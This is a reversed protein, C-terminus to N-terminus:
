PSSLSCPSKPIPVKLASSPTIIKILAPCKLFQFLFTAPKGLPFVTKIRDPDVTKEAKHFCAANLTLFLRVTWQVFHGAALFLELTVIDISCNDSETERVKRLPEINGAIVKMKERLISLRAAMDEIADHGPPRKKEIM